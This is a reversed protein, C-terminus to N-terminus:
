TPAFGACLRAPGNDITAVHVFGTGHEL